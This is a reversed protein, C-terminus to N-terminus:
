FFPYYILLNIFLSIFLDNVLKEFYSVLHKVKKKEEKVM